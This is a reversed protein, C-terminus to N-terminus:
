ISSIYIECTYIEGNIGNLIILYSSFYEEVPTGYLTGNNVDINLGNTLEPHIEYEGEIDINPNNNNIPINVVYAPNDDDYQFKNDALILNFNFVILFYFSFLFYICILIINFFKM